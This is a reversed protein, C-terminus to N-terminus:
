SFESCFAIPHHLAPWQHDIHDILAGASDAMISQARRNADEWRCVRVGSGGVRIWGHCNEAMIGIVVGGNIKRTKSV